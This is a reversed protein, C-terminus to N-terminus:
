STNRLRVQDAKVIVKGSCLSAVQLDILKMYLGLTDEFNSWVYRPIDQNWENVREVQPRYNLVRWLALSFSTSKRLWVIDINQRLANM